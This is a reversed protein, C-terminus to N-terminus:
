GSTERYEFPTLHYKEKFCKRFYQTSNFGVKDGIESINLFPNEKLLRAAENLRIEKIFESPTQGTIEKLKNFFKTRSMGIEHVLEDVDFDSNEMREFVLASVKDVFAKEKLNYPMEPAAPMTTQQLKAQAEAAHRHKLLRKCRLFLVHPYFPKEVFDDAGSKFAEIQAEEDNKATLLVTPIDGAERKIARCLEYGSIGPMMVDTVVIDPKHEKIMALAENGDKATTVYYYPKFLSSLTERLEASDEVVLMQVQGEDVATDDRDAEEMEQHLSGSWVSGTYVENGQREGRKEEETFHSDGLKLRLTFMTQIGQKSTVSITGHHMDVIAKTLALGVGSGIERNDTQKRDVRYFRDFVHALSEEPIGEGNDLVEIVAEANEVYVLVKIEGKDPTHKFANSILNNMVKWMLREDFWLEISEERNRFKYSIKKKAAITNFMQFNNRLFAVLDQRHAKVTMYGQEQKRFDLLETVLEKLHFCNKYMKFLSNYMTKGTDQRQMLVEIQGLIISLPTRFEHSVETFFRLKNQAMEEIEEAHRKEYKLAERMAVRRKYWHTILWIAAALLVIYLIYAYVSRYFPPRVIIQVSCHPASNEFMHKSRIQFTYAGPALRSYSVTNGRVKRWQEELGTLRYELEDKGYPLYDTVAFQLAFTECGSRLTISKASTIDGEYAKYKDAPRVEDGNIYLKSIFVDFDHSSNLLDSEHFTIFGDTGGIFVQGNEAVYLSNRSVSNLPIESTVHYNVVERADFDFISFGSDTTIIFKGSKLERIEYVVNSGLGANKTDFEEYTDTTFDYVCLGYELTCIWFRGASDAYLSSVRRDKFRDVLLSVMYDNGNAAELNYCYLGEGTPVCWLHGAADAFVRGTYKRKLFEDDDFLPRCTGDSPNFFSVAADSAALIIGDKYPIIDNITNSPLSLPNRDDHRYGVTKGNDLHIKKLGEFHTGVWLVNTGPDYYLAKTRLHSRDQGKESTHMYARINGHEPEFRCVGGGETCMWINHAADETMEGVIPSSLGSSLGSNYEYKQYLQKTPNFYVLGNFTTCVWITGQMDCYLEWISTENFSNFKDEKFYATFQGTKHDFKNLGAFTGIWIDGNMDECCYHTIDHSISGKQPSCTYHEMETGRMRYLGGGRYDTIWYDGRSDLFIDYIYGHDIIRSFKRDSMNYLFLGKNYTGIMLSDNHVHMCTVITEPLSCVKKIEGDAYRCIENRFALYLMDGFYINDARRDCVVSFNDEAFNYTIVGKNTSVYFEDGGRSGEIQRINNPISAEPNYKDYQYLKVENGNYLNLGNQTGIWMFGRYDQYLANISNNSLGDSADLSRFM